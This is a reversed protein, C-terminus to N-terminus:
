CSTKPATSSASSAPSTRTPRSAPLRSRTRSLASRASPWKQRSCNPCSRCRPILPRHARSSSNASPRPWAACRSSACCSWSAPAPLIMVCLGDGSQAARRLARRQSQARLGPEAGTLGRDEAPYEGQRRDAPVPHQSHPDQRFAPKSRWSSPVFCRRSEHQLVLALMEVMEWDGGPRKLLHGQLRRFADPRQAFPAGNRLAGPKRQIVALYHRWDYVTRGPLHHSREIIRDHECLIQGEAAIVIRDPYVRLSAPM